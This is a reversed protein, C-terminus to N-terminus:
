NCLQYNNLSHDQVHAKQATSPSFAKKDHIALCMGIVLLLQIPHLEALLWEHAEEDLDGALEDAVAENDDESDMCKSLTQVEEEEIEKVLKYLEQDLINVLDKCNKKPIDFQKIITKTVTTIIHLLCCMHAAEGPYDELTFELEEVM